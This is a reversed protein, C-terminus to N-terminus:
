QHRQKRSRTYHLTSGSGRGRRAGLAGPISLAVRAGVPESIAVPTRAYTHTLTLTSSQSLCGRTALTAIKSHTTPPGAQQAGAQPHQTYM